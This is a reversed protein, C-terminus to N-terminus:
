YGPGGGYLAMFLNGLVDTKPYHIADMDDGADTVQTELSSWSSSLQAYHQAAANYKAYATAYDWAAYAANGEAVLQNPLAESQLLGDQSLFFGTTIFYADNYYPTWFETEHEDTFWSYPVGQNVWYDLRDDVLGWQGDAVSQAASAASKANAMSALSAAASSAAQDAQSQTQAQLNPLSLAVFVFSLIIKKM